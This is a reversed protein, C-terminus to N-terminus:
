NKGGRVSTLFSSTKTVKLKIIFIKIHCIKLWEETMQKNAQNTPGYVIFVDEKVCWPASTVLDRCCCHWAVKALLNERQSFLFISSNTIIHYVEHCQPVFVFWYHEIGSWYLVATVSTNVTNTCFSPNVGLASVLVGSGKHIIRCAM